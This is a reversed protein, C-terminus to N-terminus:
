WSVLQFCFDWVFQPCVHKTIPKLCAHQLPFTHQLWLRLVSPKSLDAASVFSPLSGTAGKKGPDHVAHLAGHIYCHEKPDM